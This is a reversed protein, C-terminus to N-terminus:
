IVLVTHSTKWHSPVEWLVHFQCDHWTLALDSDLMISRSAPWVLHMSERETVAYPQAHCCVYVHGRSVCCMQFCSVVACLGLSRGM